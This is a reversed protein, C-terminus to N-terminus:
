WFYTNKIITAQHIHSYATYNQATSLYSETHFHATHTLTHQIITKDGTTHRYQIDAPRILMKQLRRLLLSHAHSLNAQAM